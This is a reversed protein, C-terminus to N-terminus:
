EVLQWCWFGVATAALGAGVACVAPWGAATWAISGAASGFAGGIFNATVYATTVRSATEPGLGYIVGQSLVNQGQVGFDLVALAAVLLPASRQGLLLLGWGLLVAALVVGTAQTGRGRDHLRGLKRAGLAGALGALGFLGITGEGYGFPPGSLLFALTTWVLAFSALGCAGFVMRLRLAPERRILSGVSLLLRRYPLSVPPRIRPLARWLAVLLLAMMAAALAFPARWGAWAALLGSLTRALLAGVLLGSMVLGVVHGREQPLALTGAFPLLVQVVVSALATLAVAAVLFGLSPAAAAAALALCGFALLAAVLRRRDVLDGLPVILVLGVAFALQSATVVIAAQGETVGFSAAITPLLPQAYYLNAITVGCAFSLLAVLGRSIPEGSIAPAPESGTPSEIM